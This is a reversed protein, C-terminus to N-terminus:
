VSSGWWTKKMVKVDEVLESEVYIKLDDNESDVEYWASREKEGLEANM